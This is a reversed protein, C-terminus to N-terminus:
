QGNEKDKRQQAAKDSYAFKAYRESLKNVNARLAETRSIDFAKYLLDLCWNIGLYAIYARETDLEQNYIIAKKVADAFHGYWKVLSLCNVTLSYENTSFTPLTGYAPTGTHWGLAQRAGELYFELDGFEELKAGEASDGQLPVPMVAELLEAVEGGLAFVMHWLHCSNANLSDLIDQGPKALVHVMKRHSITYGNKAVIETDNDM